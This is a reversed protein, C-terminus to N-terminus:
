RFSERSAHETFRQRTLNDFALVATKMDLEMAGAEELLGNVEAAAGKAREEVKDSFDQLWKLVQNQIGVSKAISTTGGGGGLGFTAGARRHTGQAEM